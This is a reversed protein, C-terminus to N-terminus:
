EFKFKIGQEYAWSLWAPCIKYNDCRPVEDGINSCKYCPFYIM